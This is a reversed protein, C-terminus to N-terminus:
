PQTNQPSPSLRELFRAKHRSRAHEINALHQLAATWSAIPRM